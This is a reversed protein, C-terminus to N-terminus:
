NLKYKQTARKKKEYSATRVHANLRTLAELPISGLVGLFWENSLGLWGGLIIFM